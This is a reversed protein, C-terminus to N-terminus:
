IPKGGNNKLISGTIEESELLPLISIRDDLRMDIYAIKRSIIDREFNLKELRAITQAVNDVPLKVTLGNKFHLDWRRDAVRVYAKILANLQPWKAVMQVFEGAKENAGAGVVLPLTGNANSFLPAIIRGDAAIVDLAADHQWIAFPIREVLSVEITNPYIKRLEVDKVWALRKLRSRVDNVDMMLLSNAGDLGINQLIDIESTYQDGSVRVEEVSLGVAATLEKAVLVGHGGLVIGYLSTISLFGLTFFTGLYRPMRRPVNSTGFLMRAPRRLLRPLIIGSGSSHNKEDATNNNRGFWDRMLAYM